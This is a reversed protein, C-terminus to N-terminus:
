ALRRALATDIAAMVDAVYDGYSRHDIRHGELARRADALLERLRENERRMTEERETVVSVAM